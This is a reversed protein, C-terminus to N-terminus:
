RTLESQQSTLRLLQAMEAPPVPMCGGPEPAVSALFDHSVGALIDMVPDGLGVAAMREGAVHAM